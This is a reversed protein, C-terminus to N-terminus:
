ASRGDPPRLEGRRRKHERWVLYVLAGPSGLTLLAVFPWPTIGNSRADRWLWAGFLTLMLCLDLLLQLGWAQERAHALFGLPGGHTVMVGVTYASFGVLAGVLLTLRM